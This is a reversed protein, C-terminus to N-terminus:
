DEVRLYGIMPGNQNITPHTLCVVPFTGAQDPTFTVTTVKGKQVDGKIGLGQIEFPHSKGKVGYFHLAVPKGRQVVLFGPDWRYVEMEPVGDKAASKIENTVIWFEQKPEAKKEAIHATHTYTQTEARVYDPATLAAAFLVVTAGLLWNRCRRYNM